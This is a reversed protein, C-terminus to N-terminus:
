AANMWHSGNSSIPPHVWGSFASRIGAARTAEHALAADLGAPNLSKTMEASAYITPRRYGGVSLGLDDSKMEVVEFPSHSM